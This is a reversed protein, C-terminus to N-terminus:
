FTDGAREEVLHGNMATQPMALRQDQAGVASSLLAM